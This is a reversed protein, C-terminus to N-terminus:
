GSKGKKSQLDLTVSLCETFLLPMQYDCWLCHFMKCENEKVVKKSVLDNHCQFRHFLKYAIHWAEYFGTEKPLALQSSNKVPSSIKPWSQAFALVTLLVEFAFVTNLKVQLSWWVLAHIIFYSFIIIGSLYFHATVYSVPAASSPPSQCGVHLSSPGITRWHMPDLSQTEGHCRRKRAM